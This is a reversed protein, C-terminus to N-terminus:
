LVITSININEYKTFALELEKNSFDYNYIIEKEEENLNDLKYSVIDVLLDKSLTDLSIAQEITVYALKNNIELVFTNDLALSNKNNKFLRAEKDLEIRVLKVLNKM